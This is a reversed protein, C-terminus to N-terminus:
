ALVDIDHPIMLPVARGLLRSPGRETRLNSWVHDAPSHPCLDHICYMHICTQHVHIRYTGICMYLDSYVRVDFTDGVFAAM